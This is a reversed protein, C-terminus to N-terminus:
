SSMAELLRESLLQGILTVAADLSGIRLDAVRATHVLDALARLNRQPHEEYEFTLQVLSRVAAARSKPVLQTTAGAVFRPFVIVRPAVVRDRRVRGGLRPAPVQVQRTTEDVAAPLSGPFLHWSGEDLSLAKPFPVVHNTGPLLAVAEDTVYDYGARLLGAVTTTKGHDQDGALLVTIGARVAAAAHVVVHDSSAKHIASRNIHWILYRLLPAATRSQFLRTEDEFLELPVADNLGRLIRYRSISCRPVRSRLPDTVARIRQGLSLPAEVTVEFHHNLASCVGSRWAWVRTSSDSHLRAPSRDAGSPRAPQISITM